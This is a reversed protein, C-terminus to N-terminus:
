QATQETLKKHCIIELVGNKLRTETQSPDIGAVPIVASYERNAGANLQLKGDQYAIFFDDQCEPPLETQIIVTGKNEFMEIPITKNRMTDPTLHIKGGSLVFKVGIVPPLKGEGEGSVHTILIKHITDLLERYADDPTEPMYKM